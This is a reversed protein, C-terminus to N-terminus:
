QFIQNNKMKMIITIEEQIIIDIKIQVNTGLKVILLKVLM